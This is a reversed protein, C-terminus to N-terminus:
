NKSENEEEEMIDEPEYEQHRDGQACDGEYQHNKEHKDLCNECAEFDCESDVPAPGVLYQCTLLEEVELKCHKCLELIPKSM